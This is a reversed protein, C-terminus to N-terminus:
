KWSATWAKNNKDFTVSFNPENISIGACWNLNGDPFRVVGSRTLHVGGLEKIADIRLIIAYGLLQRDVILAEITM